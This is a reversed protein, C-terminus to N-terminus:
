QQWPPAVSASGEIISRRSPRREPMWRLGELALGDPLGEEYFRTGQIDTTFLLSVLTSGRFEVRVTDGSAELAGDPQSEDKVKFYLAEANPGVVYVRLSDEGSWGTVSKGRLQQIRATTSDLDAIFANGHVFLSDMEGDDLLTRITDGTVQVSEVWLVPSGFLWMETRMSDADRRYSVSDALASMTEMWIRVQGTATLREEADLDEHKLASARVMLTDIGTSDGRVNVLLPNGRVESNRGIRQVWGGSIRTTDNEAVTTVHVSGSAISHDDERYHTMSDAHLHHDDGILSVNGGVLARKEDTWYTGTDGTLTSTSDVLRLGQAFEARKDDVFHVAETAFAMMEGDSLKVDGSARGVKNVEDYELSDAWLTDARDVLLVSGTFATQRRTISRLATRATITTSDQDVRVNGFIYQMSEGGQRLGVLSDGGVVVTDTDARVAGGGTPRDVTSKPMLVVILGWAALAISRM